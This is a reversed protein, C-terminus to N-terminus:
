NGLKNNFGLRSNGYSSNSNSGIVKSFFSLIESSIRDSIKKSPKHPVPSETLTLTKAAVNLTTDLKTEHDPKAKKSEFLTLLLNLKEALDKNKLLLNENDKDLIFKKLIECDGASCLFSLNSAQRIKEIAVKSLLETVIDPSYIEIIKTLWNFSPSIEFLVDSLIENSAARILQCSKQNLLFDLLAEDHIDVDPFLFLDRGLKTCKDALLIVEKKLSVNSLLFNFLYTTKIKGTYTAGSHFIHTLADGPTQEILQNLLEAAPSNSLTEEESLRVLIHALWDLFTLYVKEDSCSGHLGNSIFWLLTHYASLNDAFERVRQTLWGSLKTDCVIWQFLISMMRRNEYWEEFDSRKADFLMDKLLAVCCGDSLFDIFSRPLKRSVDTRIWHSFNALRNEDTSQLKFFLQIKPDLCLLTENNLLFNKLGSSCRVDQIIKLGVKRILRFVIDPSYTLIIANLFNFDNSIELLIHSLVKSHTLEILIAMYERPIKYLVALIFLGFSFKGLSSDFVNMKTLHAQLFSTFSLKGLSFDDSACVKMLYLELFYFSFKGLYPNLVSADFLQLRTLYTELFLNCVKLDLERISVRALQLEDHISAIEKFIETIAPDKIVEGRYYVKKPYHHHDEDYGLLNRYESRVNRIRSVRQYSEKTEKITEIVMNVAPYDNEIARMLLENLQSGKTILEDLKPEELKLLKDTDIPSLTFYAQIYQKLIDISFSRFWEIDNLSRILYPPKFLDIILDAVALSYNKIILRMMDPYKKLLERDFLFAQIEKDKTDLLPYFFSHNFYISCKRLLLIIMEKFLANCALFNSLYSSEEKTEGEQKYSITYEKNDSVLCHLIEKPTQEILRKVLSVAPDNTLTKEKSLRVLVRAVWDKFMLLYLYGPACEGQEGNSIFWLLTNCISLEKKAEDAKSLTLQYHEISRELSKSLQNDLLIWQFLAIIVEDNKNQNRDLVYVLLKVCHADDLFKTFPLNLKKLLLDMLDQPLAILSEIWFIFQSLRTEGEGTPHRLLRRIIETSLEEITPVFKTKNKTM